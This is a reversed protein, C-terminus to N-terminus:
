RRALVRYVTARSVGLASAIETVGKDEQYRTVIQGRVEDTLRPMRTPRGARRVMALVTKDDLGLRAALAKLPEGAAYAAVVVASDPAPRVPKMLGAISLWRRVSRASVTFDAALEVVTEGGQYRRCM